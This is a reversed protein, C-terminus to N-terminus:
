ANEGWTLDLEPMVYKEGILVHGRLVLKHFQFGEEWDGEHVLVLKPEGKKKRYKDSCIQVFEKLPLKKDNYYLTGKYYGKYEKKM